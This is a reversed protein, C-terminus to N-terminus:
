KLQAGAIGRHLELSRAYPVVKDAESSIVCTPLSLSSLDAYLDFDLAEGAFIQVFATKDNAAVMDVVRRVLADPADPGLSHTVAVRAYDAMDGARLAALRESMVEPPVRRSCATHCLVLKGIRVREMLALQLAVYGGMSTGVIVAPWADLRDLLAVIDDAFIRV